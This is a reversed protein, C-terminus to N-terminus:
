TATAACAEVIRFVHDVHHYNLGHDYVHKSCRLPEDLICFNLHIDHYNFIDSDTDSACCRKILMHMMFGIIYQGVEGCKGNIMMAKRSRRKYATFKLNFKIKMVFPSSLVNLM